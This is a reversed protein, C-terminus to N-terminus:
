TKGRETKAKCRIPMTLLIAIPFMEGAHNMFMAATNAIRQEQAFFTTRSARSLFLTKADDYALSSIRKV